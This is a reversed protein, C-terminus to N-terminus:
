VYDDLEHLSSKLILFVPFSSHFFPFKEKEQM